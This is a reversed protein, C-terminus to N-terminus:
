LLFPWDFHSSPDLHAMPVLGIYPKGIHRYLNPDFIKEGSISIEPKNVQDVFSALAVSTMMMKNHLCFDAIRLELYHSIVHGEM